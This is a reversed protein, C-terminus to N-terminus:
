HSAKLCGRRTPVRSSMEDLIRQERGAVLLYPAANRDIPWNLLIFLIRCYMSSPNM